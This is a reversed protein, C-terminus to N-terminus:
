ARVIRLRRLNAGVERLSELEQKSVIGTAWLVLPFAALAALKIAIEAVVADLQVLGVVGLAAAIGVITLLKGIEYATRYVRQALVYQTATLLLYAIVNAIAAGIMGYPPILAFNLGINVGAALLTTLAVYETRRAYAIGAMVITSVGFAVVALVLLGVARYAQGYGPAVLELLQRSFLTLTLGSFSLGIAVYRLTQVRVTRELAPDRSYMAFIYPGFALAFGTVGLLLLNAVRNAAAYQGVESLSGLKELMIRDIVALAWLAAAAPVLPLGYRLMRKLETWSFTRGIDHRVVLLGYVAALGNGLLLGLFVGKVGQDFAVVLTISAAAAVASALASSVVYHWARFHLRMTERLLSALNILPISAAVVLLIPQRDSSGLLWASLPASAAALTGAVLVGIATSYSLATFIVTRRAAVEDDHYDYFSRQAASAMGSDVLTLALAGVVTGLELLGFQSTTFVHGYVPLTVVGVAQIAVGSLGYVLTQKALAIIHSPESPVGVAEGAPTAGPDVAV